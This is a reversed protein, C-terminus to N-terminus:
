AAPPAVSFGNDGVEAELVDQCINGVWMGPTAAHAYYGGTNSYDGPFTNGVVMNLGQSGGRLDLYITPTLLAGLDFVNDKFLTANFSRDNNLSGIYNDADSFRNGVIACMYPNATLSNTVYICFALADNANNMEVFWNNLIHVNFPSGVFQVGYLGTWAGNFMNNQIVTENAALNLLIGASTTPPNFHFGEIVWGEANITLCPTTVVATSAWTPLNYTPGSGLLTCDSVDAPITVAEDYALGAVVIVSGRLSVGLVTQFTVLQTVAAQITLKPAEPNTGDNADNANNNDEDVYLVIATPATRLGRQVDGFSVGFQGPYWPQMRVQPLM